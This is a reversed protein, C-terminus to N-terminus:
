RLKAGKGKKVSTVSCPVYTVVKAPEYFSWTSGVGTENWSIASATSYVPINNNYVYYMDNYNIM